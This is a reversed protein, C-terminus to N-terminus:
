LHINKENYDIKSKFFLRLWIELNILHWKFSLSNTLPNNKNLTYHEFLDLEYILSKKSVIIEQLYDHMPKYNVIWDLPIGFGLKERSIITSPLLDKLVNRLIIKDNKANLKEKVDLSNAFNVLDIDLFPVRSEISAGMSMKDQRDLLTQLYIEQDFYMAAQYDNKTNSMVRKASRERYEFNLNQRFGADILNNIPILARQWILRQDARLHKYPFMQNQVRINNFMRNFNLIARAALNILPYYSSLSGYRQQSYYGGFIEDAGEGSLLVTVFKKAYMSIQYMPVSNAHLLPEDHLWVTKPLDGWFSEPESFICHHDSNVYDSVLESYHSENYKLDKFGISFTKLQSKETLKSVVSTLGSSDLGGSCMTGIPVDSIMQKKIGNNLKGILDSGNVTKNYDYISWYKKIELNNNVKLYHGPLLKYINKFLTNEGAVHGFVMYEGVRNKDLDMQIGSCLISKVESAFYFIGNIYQYYFPKVGLQDRACFLINEKKDYIAFAFIGNLKSLMKEKYQKYMYILVETDTKTKFSYGKTKLHNRLKVYNYIEGNYTIVISSDISSMPQDARKNLDLISLRRHALSINEDDYNGFADPGRHSMIDRMINVRSRDNIKRRSFIGCIGCM